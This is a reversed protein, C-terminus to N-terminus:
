ASESPLAGARAAVVAVTAMSVTCGGGMADLAAGIGALV